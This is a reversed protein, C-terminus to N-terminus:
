QTEEPAPSEPSPPQAPQSTPPAKILLVEGATARVAVVDGSTAKKVAALCQVITDFHRILAGDPGTDEPLLEM